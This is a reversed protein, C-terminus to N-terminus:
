EFVELAKDQDTVRTLNDGGGALKRAAERYLVACVPM